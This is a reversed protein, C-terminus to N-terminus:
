NVSQQIKKLGRLAEQINKFRITSTCRKLVNMSFKFDEPVKKIKKFRRFGKSGKLCKKYRQKDGKVKKFWQFM